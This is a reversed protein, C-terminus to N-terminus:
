LDDYNINRIASIQNNIEECENSKVKRIKTITRYKITPSKNKWKKLKSIALKENIRLHEIEKTQSDLTGRLRESELRYYAIESNLDKINGKLEQVDDKLGAIYMYVFMSVAAVAAYILMTKYQSFYGIFSAFM